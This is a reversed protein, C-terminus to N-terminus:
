TFWYLHKFHISHSMQQSKIHSHSPVAISHSRLFCWARNMGKITTDRPLLMCLKVILWNSVVTQFEQQSQRWSCNQTVYSFGDCQQMILPKWGFITNGLKLAWKLWWVQGGTVKRQKWHNCRSDSPHFDTLLPSFVAYLDVNNFICLRGGLFNM